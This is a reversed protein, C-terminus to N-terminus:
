VSNPVRSLDFVHFDDAMSFFFLQYKVQPARVAMAGSSLIFHQHQTKQRCLSRQWANNVDRRDISFHIGGLDSFYGLM